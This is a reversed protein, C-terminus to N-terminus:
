ATRGTKERGVICYVFLYGLAVFCIRGAIMAQPFAVLAAGHRTLFQLAAYYVGISIVAVVFYLRQRRVVLFVNHIFSCSFVFAALLEWQMGGIAGAYKPLLWRTMPGALFWGAAVMPLMGAVCALTPKHTMAILAHLDHKRGYNEAMRPYLVQGIAIPLLIAASDVVAVMQYLGLGTTGLHKLVLTGDLVKWFNVIEGVVFIPFGVLFLHKWHEWQLKAAVRIPQWRRLLVFSSAPALLGRLCLGYFGLVVVPVLLLLSAVSDVVTAVSLRAFDSTTRFTAQLYGASYFVLFAIPAHVAWGAAAAYNGRALSWAAMGLLGIAVAGGLFMTWAKATAALGLVREHEGKGVHYPVERNLGNVIGLQLFRLYGIVLTFSAYLGLVGPGVFRGQIVGGALRLGMSVFNGGAVTGVLFAASRRRPLPRPSESFVAESSDAIQSM